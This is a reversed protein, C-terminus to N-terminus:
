HEADGLLHRLKMRMYSIQTSPMQGIVASAAHLWRGRSFMSTGSSISASSAKGSPILESDSLCEVEKLIHATVPSKLPRSAAWTLEYGPGHTRTTDRDPGLMWRIGGFDQGRCVGCLMIDVM